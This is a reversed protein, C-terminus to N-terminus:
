LEDVGVSRAGAQVAAQAAMAHAVELVEHGHDFALRWDLLRELVVLGAEHMHVDFVQWLHGILRMPAVQEDGDIPRRAPDVKAGIAILGLDAACVEQAPELANSRHRDFVDQGVVAALKRVAERAFVLLGGALVGERRTQASNPM